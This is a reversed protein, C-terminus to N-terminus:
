LEFTKAIRPRRARYKTRALAMSRNTWRLVPTAAIRTNTPQLIAREAQIGTGIPAESATM